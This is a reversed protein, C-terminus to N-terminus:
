LLVEGANPDVPLGDTLHALAEVVTILTAPDLGGPGLLDDEPEEESWEDAAEVTEFHMVELWADARLLHSMQQESLEDRLQDALTIVRDSVASGQEYRVDLAANDESAQVLVSQFLGDDNARLNEMRLRRNAEGIAAEVQTLTPRASSEFLVVYTERWALDGESDSHDTEFPEAM